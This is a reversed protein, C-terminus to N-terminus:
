SLKTQLLPENSVHGKIPHLVYSLTESINILISGNKDNSHKNRYYHPVAARGGAMQYKNVVFEHEHDFVEIDSESITHHHYKQFAEHLMTDIKNKPQNDLNKVIFYTKEM